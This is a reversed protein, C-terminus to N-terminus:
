EWGPISGTATIEALDSDFSNTVLVAIRAENKLVLFNQDMDMARSLVTPDGTISGKAHVRGNADRWIGMQYEVSGMKEEARDLLSGNGSITELFRM